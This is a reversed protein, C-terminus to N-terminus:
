IVYFALLRARAPAPRNAPLMRENDRTCAFFGRVIGPSKLERSIQLLDTSRSWRALSTITSVWAPLRGGCQQYHCEWHSEFHLLARRNCWVTSRWHDLENSAIRSIKYSRPTSSVVNAPPSTGPFDGM